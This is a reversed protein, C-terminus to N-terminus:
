KRFEYMRLTKVLPAGVFTAALTILGREVPYLLTLGQWTTMWFDVSSNVQLIIAEFLISGVVHGFLAATLCTTAIGLVFRASGSADDIASVAKSQVPSALVILGILDFWIVSPWLWVPGILPFFAFLFLLPAYAVVCVKQKKITLMGSCFAAAAHPMFSLPGFPGTIQFIAGAIGGITIALAGFYPGLVMGFLPAMVVAANIWRGETGIVPFVNWLSFVVYLAAFCATLAVNKTSLHFNSLNM